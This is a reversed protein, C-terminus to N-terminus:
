PTTTTAPMRFPRFRRPGYLRELTEDLESLLQWADHPRRTADPLTCGRVFGRLPTPALQKMLGAMCRAAMHLDVSPDAPRRDAVQPPYSSRHRSVLAPIRGGIPVAYCWDVIVLGHKEPHILVHEPLVAGHVVGARHAHGLGVLLRRWMWAADRPDLGDPHAAAVEALTHFGDLRSLVTGVREVGTAPDRHRVTGVLRSLYAVFRDDGLDAIRRLADVEAGILDNDGPDRALKVVLDDGGDLRYVNALDGAALLAGWRHTVRDITVTGGTGATHEHWLRTLRTFARHATDRDTAEARDPHVTGALTRFRRRADTTPRGDTGTRGFLETASRHEILHVAETFATTM